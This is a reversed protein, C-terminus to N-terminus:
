VEYRMGGIGYWWRHDVAMFLQVVPKQVSLNQVGYRMDRMEYRKRQESEWPATSKSISGRGEYVMGSDLITMM